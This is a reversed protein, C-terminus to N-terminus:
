KFMYGKCRKAGCLCKAYVADGNNGDGTNARINEKINESEEGQYYRQLYGYIPDSSPCVEDDSEYGTYSFCLEEWPLVDRRTFLAVLPKDINAENIYCANPACNPDCSHNQEFIHHYLFAAEKNM